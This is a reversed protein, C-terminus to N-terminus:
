RLFNKVKNTLLFSSINHFCYPYKTKRHCFKHTECPCMKKVSIGSKIKPLPDEDKVQIIKVNNYKLYNVPITPGYIGIIRKEKFLNAIRLFYNDTAVTIDHQSIVNVAEKFTRASVFEKTWFSDRNEEKSLCITTDYGHSVLFDYIDKELVAPLATSIDGNCCLAVSQKPNISSSVLQDIELPYPIKLNRCLDIFNSTNIGTQEIKYDDYCIISNFDKDLFTLPSLIWSEFQPNLRVGIKIEQDKTIKNCALALMITEVVLNAKQGEYTFIVWNKNQVYERLPYNIIKKNKEYRM